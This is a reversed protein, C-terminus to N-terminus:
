FISLDTYQWSRITYLRVNRANARRRETERQRLALARFTLPQRRLVSSVVNIERTFLRTKVNIIYESGVCCVILKIKNDLYKNQKTKKDYRM